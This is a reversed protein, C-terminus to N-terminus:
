VKPAHPMPLPQAHFYSNQPSAVGAWMLYLGNFSALLGIVGGGKTVGVKGTFSGIALLMIWTWLFFFLTFFPWTAKFTCLWMAFAFFVWWTLFFGVANNFEAEDTYSTSIGFNAWIVTGYSAWFGGFSGLVTGAFTADTCFCLIGSILEILGGFFLCGGVLISPNTVGRAQVQTLSVVFACFSFAALGLSAPNGLRRPPLAHIGPNLEGGFANVLESKRFSYPGLYVINGDSSTLIRHLNDPNQVSNVGNSDAHNSGQSKELDPTLQRLEESSSM